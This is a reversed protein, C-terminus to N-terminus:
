ESTPKQFLVSFTTFFGQCAPIIFVFPLSLSQNQHPNPHVPTACAEAVELNRHWGAKVMMFESSLLLFRLKVHIFVGPVSAQAGCARHARGGAGTDVRGQVMESAIRVTQNVGQERQGRQEWLLM